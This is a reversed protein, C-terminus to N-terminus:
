RPWTSRKRWGRMTVAQLGERDALDTAAAVVDDLSLAREPGRRAAGVHWAV